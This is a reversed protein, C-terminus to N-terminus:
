KGGMLCILSINVQPTVSSERDGLWTEFRTRGAEAGTCNDPGSMKACFNKKKKFFRNPCELFIQQTFSHFYRNTWQHTILM